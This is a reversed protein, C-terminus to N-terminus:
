QLLSYFLYNVTIQSYYFVIFLRLNPIQKVEAINTADKDAQAPAPRSRTAVAVASGEGVARIVSAVGSGVM